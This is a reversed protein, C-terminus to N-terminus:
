EGKAKSIAARREARFNADSRRLERLEVILRSLRENSRKLVIEDSWASSVVLGEDELMGVLDDLAAEYPDRPM